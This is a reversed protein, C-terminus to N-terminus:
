WFPATHGFKDDFFIKRFTFNLKFFAKMTFRGATFVKKIFPPGFTESTASAPMVSISLGRPIPQHACVTLMLVGQCSSGDHMATFFWESIPELSYLTM